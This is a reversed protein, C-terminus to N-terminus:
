VRRYKNFFIKGLKLIITLGLLLGITSYIFPVVGFSRLNIKSITCSANKNVNIEYLSCHYFKTRDLQNCILNEFSKNATNNNLKIIKFEYFYFSDFVTNFTSNNVTFQGLNEFQDCDTACYQNTRYKLMFQDVPDTHELFNINIVLRDLYENCKYKSEASDLTMINLQKGHLVKLLSLLELVYILFM